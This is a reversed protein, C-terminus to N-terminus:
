GLPDGDKEGVLQGETGGELLGEEDGVPNGLRAGVLNLKGSTEKCAM